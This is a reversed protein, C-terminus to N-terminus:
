QETANQSLETLNKLEFGEATVDFPEMLIMGDIMVPVDVPPWEFAGEQGLDQHLEVILQDTAVETDIIVTVNTNEGAEVQAFGVLGGPEGFLSNHIAVWGPGDMVVREITVNGVTENGEIAQDMVTISPEMEQAGTENEMGTEQNAVQACSIGILSILLAAIIMYRYLKM